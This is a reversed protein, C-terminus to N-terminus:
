QLCWKAGAKGLKAWSQQYYAHVASLYNLNAVNALAWSSSQSWMRGFPVVRSEWRFRATANKNTRNKYESQSLYNDKNLDASVDFGRIKRWQSITKGDPTTTPADTLKVTPFSNKLKVEKLRPRDDANDGQWRIRM